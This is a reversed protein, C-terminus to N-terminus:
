QQPHLTLSKSKVGNGSLKVKLGKKGAEKLLKQGKSNLKVKIKKAKGSGVSFSSSGLKVSKVKVKGKSNKTKQEFVLKLSGSCTGGGAPCKLTVTVVSGAAKAGTATAKGPAPPAPAPPTPNTTVPPTGTSTPGPTPSPTPTTKEPEVKEEQHPPVALASSTASASGATNAVTVACTLSSGEDASTVTYSAGTQGAIAVGDRQWSYALTEASHSWTGTSCALAMGVAATGTLAPATTFAPARPATEVLAADIGAVTEPATVEIEAGAEEEDPEASWRQPVYGNAVFKVLWTESSALGEIAYEGGAGTKTCRTEVVVRESFACVEIGALPQETGLGALTVAGEITGGRTLEADIETTARSAVTATQLEEPNFTPKEDYYQPVYPHTCSVEEECEERSCEVGAECVWGNFELNYETPPLQDFEYRGAADTVTCGNLFLGLEPAVDFCVIANAIPGGGVEGITGALTGFAQLEADIGSERNGEEVEVLDPSENPYRDNWLQEAWERVCGSAPCAEGSFRVEYEGEPLEEIAYEGNEDAYVCGGGPAGDPREACVEAGGIPKAPATGAETVLGAISGSGAASALAPAAAACCLVCALILLLKRPGRGLL